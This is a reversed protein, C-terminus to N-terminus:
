AIPLKEFSLIVQAEGLLLQLLYFLILCCEIGLVQEILLIKM